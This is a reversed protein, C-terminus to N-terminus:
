LPLLLFHCASVIWIVGVIRGARDIWTPEPRWARALILALWAGGVVLGAHRPMWILTTGLPDGMSARSGLSYFADFHWGLYRAHPPDETQLLILHIGAAPRMAQHALGFVLVVTGALCAVAGPRRARWFRGRRGGRRALLLLLVMWLCVMATAVLLVDKIVVRSMQYLPRDGLFWKAYNPRDAFYGAFAQIPEWQPRPGHWESRRHRSPLCPM